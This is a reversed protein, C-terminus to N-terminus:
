IVIVSEDEEKYEKGIVERLNLDANCIVFIQINGKDDKLVNKLTFTLEKRMAQPLNGLFASKQIRSLGFNKCVESVRLRIEDDSIDYIILTKM